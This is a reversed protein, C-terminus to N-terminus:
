NKAAFHLLFLPKAPAFFPSISSREWWTWVRECRVGDSLLWLPAQLAM